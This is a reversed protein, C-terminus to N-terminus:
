TQWLQPVFYGISLLALLTVAAYGLLSVVNATTKRWGGRIRWWDTAYFIVGGAAGGIAVALLLLVRAWAPLKGGAVGAIARFLTLFIAFGAGQAARTVIDAPHVVLDHKNGATGQLEANPM